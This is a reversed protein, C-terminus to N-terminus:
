IDIPSAGERGVIREEFTPLSVSFYCTQFAFGSIKTVGKSEPSEEM